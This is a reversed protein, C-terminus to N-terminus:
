NARIRPKATIVHSHKHAKVIKGHRTKKIVVITKHGRIFKVTKHRRHHKVAHRPGQKVVKVIKTRVVTPKAPSAADASAALGPAFLLSAAVLAASMTKFMPKM